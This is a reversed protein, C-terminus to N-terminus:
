DMLEVKESLTLKVEVTLNESSPAFKKSINSESELNYSKKGNENECSTAVTQVGNKGVLQLTFVTGTTGASELFQGIAEGKVLVKLGAGANEILITDGAKTGVKVAAGFVLDKSNILCIEVTVPVLITGAADSVSNVKLGGTATCELFQLTGTALKDSTFTITAPDFKKCEIFEGSATQLTAVGGGDLKGSKGTPSALFGEQGTASTATVVGFATLALLMLGILKIRVM